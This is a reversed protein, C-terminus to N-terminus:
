IDGEEWIRLEENMKLSALFNELEEIRKEAAELRTLIVGRTKPKDLGFFNHRFEDFDQLMEKRILPGILIMRLEENSHGTYYKRWYGYLNPTPKSSQNQKM